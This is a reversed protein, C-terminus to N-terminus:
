KIGGSGDDFFHSAATVSIIIVAKYCSSGPQHYQHVTLVINALHLQQYGDAPKEEVVMTSNKPLFIGTDPLM